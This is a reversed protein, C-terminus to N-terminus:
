DELEGQQYGAFVPSKPNLNFARRLSREAERANGLKLKLRSDVLWLQWNRSDRDIAKEIWSDAQAILGEKESVLALQLYPSSAWPQLNRADMAARVAEATDGSRVFARSDKLRLESLLPIGQACILVWVAVLSAWLGIRRIRAQRLSASEVVRLPRPSSAGNVSLLALAILGFVTVASLEWMWDIGAAVAFGAAVGTLAGLAVKEDGVSKRSRSVGVGIGGGLVGLVLLFGPIGLEGLSELYLSHADKISYTFDTHELWWAGYSGAGGGLVANSEYQRISSGWFQWRGNGRASLLHSRAFDRAPLTDVTPRQKFSEFQRGPHSLMASTIAAALLVGAISWGLWPKPKLALRPSLARIGAYLAGSALCALGIMLAASRGQSEVLDTSFLAAPGNVLEDRALLVAIAASSGAAACLVAMSVRWRNETLALFVIIGLAGTLAGGRSSALFAVSVIAPLPAVAIAQVWAQRGSVAARLLLPISLAVFIALGNWYGTPFSLREAVSPLQTQLGQDSFSGPFFRSVLAVIAILAAAIALGDCWRDLADRKAAIATLVFVGLFLSVRNFENFSAEASPSWLVSAFTWLCLGALLGALALTARTAPELTFVGLTTGIIVAWWVAIALTNRSPLGYTGNDYTIVFLVAAVAVSILLSPSPAALRIRKLVTM